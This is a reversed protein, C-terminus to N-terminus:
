KQACQKEKVAMVSFLPCGAELYKKEFLSIPNINELQKVEIKFGLFELAIAAERAFVEWNARLEFKPSLAAMIPFIPHAYFRRKIQSAKPWPNPYFMFHQDISIKEQALLRWFDIADARLLLCNAPLNNPARSLRDLSKDIGVVLHEPFQNALNKTSLGTGCCSDLIIPKSKLGVFNKFIAFAEVQHEAIPKKFLNDKNKQVIDKIQGFSQETFNYFSQYRLKLNISHTM